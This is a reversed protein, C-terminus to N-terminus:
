GIIGATQLEALEAESLPRWKHKTYIGGKQTTKATTEVFLLAGSVPNDPGVAEALGEPTLEEDPLLAKFFWQINGPTNPKSWSCVWSCSMNVPFGQDEHSSALLTFEVIFKDVGDFGTIMKLADIRTVFQGGVPLYNGGENGEHEVVKKFLAQLRAPNVSQQPPQQAPAQAPAPPRQGPRVQPAAPAPARFGSRGPLAM